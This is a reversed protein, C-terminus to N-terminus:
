SAAQTIQGNKKVLVDIPGDATSFEKGEVELRDLHHSYEIKHGQFRLTFLRRNASYGYEVGDGQKIELTDDAWPVRPGSARGDVEYLGSKKHSGLSHGEFSVSFRDTYLMAIGNRDGSSVWMKHSPVEALSHAVCFVAICLAVVLAGTKIRRM